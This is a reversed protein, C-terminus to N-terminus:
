FLVSTKRYNGSVQLSSVASCGPEIDRDTVGEERKLILIDGKRFGWAKNELAWISFDLVVSLLMSSVAFTMGMARAKRPVLACALM